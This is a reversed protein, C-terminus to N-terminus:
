AAPQVTITYSAEGENAYPDLALCTNPSWSRFRFTATYPGPADYVTTYAPTIRGPQRAPPTWPGHHPGCDPPPSCPGDAARKGDGMRVESCNDTLTHDPDNAVVDFTIAEGVRPNLSRPVVSVTLPENPGPSPDWRFDGCAPETSNRCNAPMTTSSTTTVPVATTSPTEVAGGGAGASAATTAVRVTTTAGQVTTSTTSSTGTSSTTSALTPPATTAARTTTTSAVGAGVQVQRPNDDGGILTTVLYILAFGGLLYLLANVRYSLPLQLWWEQLRRAQSPENEPPSESM